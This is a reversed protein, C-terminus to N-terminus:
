KKLLEQVVSELQDNRFRGVLTGDRAIVFTSPFDSVGYTSITKGSGPADPVRRLPDDDEKAFRRDLLVPFPLDQGHLFKARRPAFKKEFEEASQVTADHLALIVVPQDKFREKLAVLKPLAELCPGCWTGWFDLIVVKGRLDALKVPKAHIDVADIEAAMRGIMKAHPSATLHVSPLDVPGDGPPVSLDGEFFELDAGPPSGDDTSNLRMRYKGEPLDAEFQRNLSAEPEGPNRELFGGLHMPLDQPHDSPSLSWSISASPSAVGSSREVVFRVKRVPQIIVKMAESSKAPDYSVLAMRRVAGDVFCLPQRYSEYEGRTNINRSTYYTPPSLSFRGFEDTVVKTSWGRSPIFREESKAGFNIAMCVRVGVVPRDPSDTVTGQIPYDLRASVEVPGEGGTRFVRMPRFGPSALSITYAKGVTENIRCLGQADTKSSSRAGAEDSSVVDAGVVPRKLHDVLRFVVVRTRETTSDDAGATCQVGGRCFALSSLLIWAWIRNKDLTLM